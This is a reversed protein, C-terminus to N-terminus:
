WCCVFRHKRPASPVYGLTLAQRARYFNPGLLGGFGCHSIITKENVKGNKVILKPSCLKLTVQGENDKTEEEAAAAAAPAPALLLQAM